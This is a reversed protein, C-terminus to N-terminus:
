ATRRERSRWPRSPLRLDLLSEVLLGALAVLILLLTQDYRVWWPEGDTAPRLSRQQSELASADDAHAYLGGGAEVIGRLLDEQLRSTAPVGNEDVVPGGLQYPAAPMLMGSGEATGVGIAHVRIGRDRAERAAALVASEEEAAEGDSILIIWRDELPERETTWFGAAERMGLALLTGPDHASAMTPTVGTLFYRLAARDPTLPAVPYASGAFLLLGVRGDGFQDLLEAAVQVGRALRAPAVDSAQMSASVDIALVASRIPESREPLRWRPEAAAAAVALTALSLLAIREIRFRHLNSGSLRLAARSGGLFTALRRRRRGHRWLALAVLTALAAGLALAFPNLFTVARAGM